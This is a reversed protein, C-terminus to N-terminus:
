TFFCMRWPVEGRIMLWALTLFAWLHCLICMGCPHARSLGPIPEERASSMRRLYSPLSWRDSSSQGECTSRRDPRNKIRGWWCKRPCDNPNTLSLRLDTQTQWPVWNLVVVGSYATWSARCSLLHLCRCWCRLCLVSRCSRRVTRRCLPHKGRKLCM